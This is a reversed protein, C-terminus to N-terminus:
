AEVLSVCDLEKSQVWDIVRQQLVKLGAAEAYKRFLAASLYARGHANKDFPSDPDLSNNSHHFLARGGPVLVRKTDVLYERVIDRHFHVMADYCFIATLSKDAVGDYAAGANLVFRAVKMDAHRNRCFEINSPLVDMMVYTQVTGACRQMLQPAHRGHGCALELVHTVNLQEFLPLFVKERDWFFPTWKEADSFYRNGEWMAAERSARDLISSDVSDSM